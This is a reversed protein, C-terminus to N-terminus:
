RIFTRFEAPNDLALRKLKAGLRCIAEHYTDSLHDGSYQHGFEHILLRDVEESPGQDFWRHSLRQLNFTLQCHGYCALFNNPVRTVKVSLAVEMLERALFTAYDAINRIADS